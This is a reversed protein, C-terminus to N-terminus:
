VAEEEAIPELYYDYGYRTQCYTCIDKIEQPFVARRLRYGGADRFNQRCKCCLCVLNKDDM